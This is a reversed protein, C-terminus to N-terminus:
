AFPCYVFSFRNQESSIRSKTETPMKTRGCLVPEGCLSKLTFYEGRWYGTVQPRTWVNRVLIRAVMSHGGFNAGAPDRSYDPFLRGPCINYRAPARSTSRCGSLIFIQCLRRGDRQVRHHSAGYRAAARVTSRLMRTYLFSQLVPM